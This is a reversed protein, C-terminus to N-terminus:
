LGRALKMVDTRSTVLMMCVVAVERQQCGVTPLCKARIITQVVAEAAEITLLIVVTRELIMLTSSSAAAAAVM